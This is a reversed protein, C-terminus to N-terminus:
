PMYYGVLCMFRFFSFPWKLHHRGRGQASKLHYPPRGGLGMNKDVGTRQLPNIDQSRWKLSNQLCSPRARALAIRQRQGGSVCKGDGGVQTQDGLPLRDLDARLAWADVTEDYRAADYPQGFLVNDRITGRLLVANQPLLSWKGRSREYSGGAM